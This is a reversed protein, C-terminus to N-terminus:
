QKICKKNKCRCKSNPFEPWTNNNKYWERIKTAESYLRTVLPVGDNCLDSFLKDYEKYKTLDVLAHCLDNRRDCWVLIEDLLGSDFGAFGGYKNEVLKKICQIRTTIAVTKDDDRPPVPCEDIFKQILRNIRQEFIAYCLWVGEVYRKNNVATYLKQKYEDHMVAMNILEQLQEKQKM